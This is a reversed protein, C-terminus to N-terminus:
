NSWTGCFGIMAGTCQLYLVTHICIKRNRNKRAHYLTSPSSDVYAYYCLGGYFFLISYVPPLSPHLM